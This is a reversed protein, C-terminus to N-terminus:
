SVVEGPRLGYPNFSSIARHNEILASTYPATDMDDDVVERKFNMASM